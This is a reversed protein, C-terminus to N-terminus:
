GNTTFEMGAAHGVYPRRTDTRTMNLVINTGQLAVRISKESKKLIDAEVTKGNDSCNVSCTMLNGMMKQFNLVVM